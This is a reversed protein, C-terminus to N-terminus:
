SHRLIGFITTWCDSNTAGDERNILGMNRQLHEQRMKTTTVAEWKATVWQQLHLEPTPPGPLSLEESRPRVLSGSGSLPWVKHSRSGKTDTHCNISALLYLFSCQAMLPETLKWKEQVRFEAEREAPSSCCSVRCTSGCDSEMALIQSHHCNLYPRNWPTCSITQLHGM